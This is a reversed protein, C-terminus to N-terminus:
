RKLQQNVDKVIDKILVKRKYSFFLGFVLLIGVCVIFLTWKTYGYIVACIICGIICGLLGNTQTDYKNIMPQIEDTIYETYHKKILEIAQDNDVEIM